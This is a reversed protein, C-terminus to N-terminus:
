KRRLIDLKYQAIRELFHRLNFNIVGDESDFKFYDNGTLARAEKTRQNLLHMYRNSAKKDIIKANVIDAIKIANGNKLIDVLIIEADKSSVPVHGHKISWNRIYVYTGIYDPLFKTTVGHTETKLHEKLYSHFQNVRSLSLGNVEKIRIFEEYSLSPRSHLYDIMKNKYLEALIKEKEVPTKGYTAKNVTDVYDSPRVYLDYGKLGCYNSYVFNGDACIYSPNEIYEDFENVFTEVDLKGLSTMKAVVRGQSDVMCVVTAFENGMSGLESSVRGYRPKRDTNPVFSVLNKSGKQNERFFTEDIQIVGSLKPMPMMALAHTIKHRWTSVTRRDLGYLRFDDTLIKTMTDLSLNNLTMEVVKVWVKWPFKTKEMITGTFLTFTRDCNCCKMRKISGRYGHSVVIASNCYPCCKNVNHAELHKQLDKQILTAKENDFKAETVNSYHEILKLFDVLEMKEVASFIDDNTIKRPM